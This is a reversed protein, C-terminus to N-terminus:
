KSFLYKMTAGSIKRGEVKYKVIDTKYIKTKNKNLHQIILTDEGSFYDGDITLEPTETEIVDDDIKKRTFKAKKNKVEDVTISATAGTIPNSLTVIEGNKELKWIDSSKKNFIEPNNTEIIESKVSWGGYFEEPLNKDVSVSGQLISIKKTSTNNGLYIPIETKIQATALTFITLLSLIM